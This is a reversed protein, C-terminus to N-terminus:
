DYRMIWLRVRAAYLFFGSVSIFYAFDRLDLVGRSLNNLHSDVGIFDLYPGLWVPAFPSLKGTMYFVFSILFSLIFSVVQNHALVSTFLGASTFVVSLLFLGIYAGLIGGYDPRGLISVTLPYMFTMGLVIAILSLSSLAKAGIIQLDTVPFTLLVELTGSKKEEAFLRMTVAPIFFTLLLPVMDVFGDIGAQNILFLPQSFFYGTILLFVISIVYASPTNFYGAIEKRFIFYITKSNRM